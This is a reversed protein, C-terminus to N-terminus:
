LYGGWKGRGDLISTAEQGSVAKDTSAQRKQQIDAASLGLLLALAAAILTILWTGKVKTEGQHFRRHVPWATTAM